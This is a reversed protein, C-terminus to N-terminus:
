RLNDPRSSFEEWAWGAVAQVLRPELDRRAEEGVEVHLFLCDRQQGQLNTRGGLRRGLPSEFDSVLYSLGQEGLEETLETLLQPDRGDHLGDSLVVTPDGPESDYGHLQLVCDSSRALGCHAEHFFTAGSHAADTARQTPQELSARASNYRNAGHLLYVDAGSEEFMRLGLEPTRYDSLPHPVEVVLGTPAGRRFLMKGWGRGTPDELLLHGELESVELQLAAADERVEDLPEGTAAAQRLEQVLQQVRMGEGRTPAVYSEMGRNHTRRIDAEWRDGLGTLM